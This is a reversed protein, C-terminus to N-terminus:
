CDHQYSGEKWRKFTLHWSTYMHDDMICRNEEPESNDPESNDNNIKEEDSSTSSSHEAVSYLWKRDFLETELVRVDFNLLVM